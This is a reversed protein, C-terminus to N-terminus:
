GRFIAYFFGDMNHTHPFVRLMNKKRSVKLEELFRSFKGEQFGSKLAFEVNDEGEERELSCVSFLLWGGPKLLRLAAKLLDRQVRQNHKILELSKNWKGEPHRRIVGTASCPADILIRDFSNRFKKLFGEDQSIDTLVFSVNKVGLKRCNEKLLQMRSGNVDVAVIKARDKTLSAIATTKGGPAAGVDLILESPRPALLWAALFSAPDQIYFYGEKFGPLAEITVRGKIRLMDPVFPHKEVEFGKSKFLSFLKEPTTKIRNVRLYLPAVKNLSSLLEKVEEKGYFRAWRKVMWTEFSYLISIREFYSPIRKVEKQYDFGILKKSVANVFGATRKSLLKKVAEVTENVAAYAPIGTFFLQYAVLRLANRVSPKQGKLNKKLARELIFDLLRLYRVTGSAIERIFARDLPSFNVTFKEVHERLRKDKEFANLIKIAIERSKWGTLTTL